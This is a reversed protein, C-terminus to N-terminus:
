RVIYAVMSAATFALWASGGWMAGWRGRSGIAIATALLLIMHTASFAGLWFVPELGLADRAAM